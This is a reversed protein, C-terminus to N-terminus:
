RSHPPWRGIRGNAVPRNVCSRSIVLRRRPDRHWANEIDLAACTGDGCSAGWQCCPWLTNCPMSWINHPPIGAGSIDHQAACEGGHCPSLRALVGLKCSATECTSAAIGQAHGCCFHRQPASGVRLRDCKFVSAGARVCFRRALGAVPLM